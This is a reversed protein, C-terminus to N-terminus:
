GIGKLAYITQQIGMISFMVLRSELDGNGAFTTSVAAQYYYVSAYRERYPLVLRALVSIM